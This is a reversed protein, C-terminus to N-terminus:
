LHFIPICESYIRRSDEEQDDNFKIILFNNFSTVNEIDAIPRIKTIQYKKSPNKKHDDYILFVIFSESIGIFKDKGNIFFVFKDCFGATIAVIGVFFNFSNNM